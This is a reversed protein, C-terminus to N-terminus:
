QLLFSGPPDLLDPGNILAAEIAVVIQYLFTDNHFVNKHTKEVWNWSSLKRSKNKPYSQGKKKSLEKQIFSVIGSQSTGKAKSASFTGASILNAGKWVHFNLPASKRVTKPVFILM